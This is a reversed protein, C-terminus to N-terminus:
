DFGVIPDEFDKLSDLQSAVEEEWRQQNGLLYGHDTEYDYARQLSDEKYVYKLKLDDVIGWNPQKDFDSLEKRFERACLETIHFHNLEHKLLPENQLNDDYVYSRAPHFFTEVSWNDGAKKVRMTTTIFAFRNSGQLTQGPVKFGDFDQLTINEHESYAIPSSYNFINVQFSVLILTLVFGLILIVLYVRKLYRGLNFELTPKQILRVLKYLDPALVVAYVSLIIIYLTQETM